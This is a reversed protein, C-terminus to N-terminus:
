PRTTTSFGRTAGALQPRDLFIPSAMKVSASETLVAVVNHRQPTTRMGGNWWNDYMANTLVGPKGAAALDAAMHAGVLAIGQNVRADLNPNIPDFFPPVFMRAGKPGMQHVDYALTPPWERYLFRTLLRTEQLNLMFWDRNTDHGAYKHYLEPMGEGEWPHGKTREYWAAVKNVGDPNASPVLVLIAHDLIERTAPDDGSALGHLLEMAMLTSATEVSHISCTILVVPRAEEPPGTGPRYSPGPQAIERQRAQHRGLDGITAEDSVIAVIYPRGETTRGLERVVVRDSAADVKRFYDVVSPWAALRFDAGPRFGLHAEPSPVEAGLAGAVPGLILAALIRIPTRM